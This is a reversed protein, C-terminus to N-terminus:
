RMVHDPLITTVKFPLTTQGVSDFRTLEFESQSLIIKTRFSVCSIHLVKPKGTYNNHCVNTLFLFELDCGQMFAMVSFIGGTDVKM